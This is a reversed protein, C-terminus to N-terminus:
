NGANNKGQKAKELLKQPETFDGYFRSDIYLEVSNSSKCHEWQEPKLGILPLFEKLVDDPISDPNKIIDEITM